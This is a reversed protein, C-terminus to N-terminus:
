NGMQAVISSGSVRGCVIRKNRGGVHFENFMMSGRQPTRSDPLIAERHLWLNNYPQADHGFQFSSLLHHVQYCPLWWIRLVFAFGFSHSKSALCHATEASGSHMNELTM